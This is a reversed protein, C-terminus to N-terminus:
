YGLADRVFERSLRLSERLPRMLRFGREHALGIVADGAFGVEGLANRRHGLGLPQLERPEDPAAVSGMPVRRRHEGSSTVTPTTSSRPGTM